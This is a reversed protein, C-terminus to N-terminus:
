QVTRNPPAMSGSSNPSMTGQGTGNPNMSAHHQIAQDTYQTAETWNRQKLASRANEIATVRPSNDPTPGTTQPVARTLIITEANSLLTDAKARRHQQIATRARQLYQAATDYGATPEGMTGQNGMTGENSMSGQNPAPAAMTGPQSMTGQTSQSGPNAMGPAPTTQAFATGSILIFAASALWLSRM